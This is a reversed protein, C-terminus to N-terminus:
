CCTTSGAVQSSIQRLRHGISTAVTVWVIGSVAILKTSPRTIASTTASARIEL